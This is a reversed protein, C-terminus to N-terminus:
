AESLTEQLQSLHREEHKGVCLFWQYGNLPGFIAHPYNVVTLDRGDVSEVAKLLRPRAAQLSSWSTALDITPDPVLRGPANITRTRDLFGLHDLSHLWSKPGSELPMGDAMAKAFLTELLKAISGEVKGLHQVIETGTWGGDAPRHDFKAAPTREIVGALRGRVDALYDSIETLHPQM